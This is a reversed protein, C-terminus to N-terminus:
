PGFVRILDADIDFYAASLGTTPPTFGNVQWFVSEAITTNAVCGVGPRYRYMRGDSYAWWLDFYSTLNTAEFQFLETLLTRDPCNPEDPIPSQGQTFEATDNSRYDYSSFQPNAVIVISEDTGNQWEAPVHYAGRIAFGPLNPFVTITAAPPLWATGNAFRYLMGDETFILIRDFTTLRLAAVIGTTPPANPLSWTPLQDLPTATWSQGQYDYANWSVPPTGGAGGRGGVNTAGGGGGGSPVGGAGGSGITTTPRGGTGTNGGTASVGGGGESRVNYGDLDFITNCGFLLCPTFIWAFRM